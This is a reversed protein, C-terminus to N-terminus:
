CHKSIVHLTNFEIEQKRKTWQVFDQIYKKNICKNSFRFKVKVVERIVKLCSSGSFQTWGVGIKKNPIMQPGPQPDNVTSSWKRDMKPDNATSLSAFECVGAGCTPSFGPFLTSSSTRLPEDRMGAGSTPNTPLCVSIQLASRVIHFNVKCSMLVVSLVLLLAPDYGYVATEGKGPSTLLSARSYFERVLVDAHSALGM